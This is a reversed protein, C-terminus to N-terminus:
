KNFIEKMDSPLEAIFEVIKSTSPHTFVINYAHLMQRKYQQEDITEPGGYQQDGIVPHNIYKM